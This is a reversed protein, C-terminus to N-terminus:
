NVPRVVDGAVTITIQGIVGTNPNPFRIYTGAIMTGVNQAFVWGDPIGSGVETDLWKLCSVTVDSQVGESEWSYIWPNEYVYIPGQKLKAYADAPRWGTFIYPYIKSASVMEVDGITVGSGVFEPQYATGAFEVQYQLRIPITMAGVVNMASQLCVYFTGQVTNMVESSDVDINYWKARDKIPARVDINTWLNKSQAGELAFIDRASEGGAIEYDPNESYGVVLLGGVTTPLGAQIRIIASRFRYKM